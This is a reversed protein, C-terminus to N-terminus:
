GQELTPPRPPPGSPPNQGFSWIIPQSALCGMPVGLAAGPCKLGARVYLYSHRPGRSLRGFEKSRLKVDAAYGTIGEEGNDPLRGNLYM